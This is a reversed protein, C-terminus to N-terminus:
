RPVDDLELARSYGPWTFDISVTDHSLYRVGPCDRRTLYFGRPAKEALAFGEEKTLGRAIPCMQGRGYDWSWATFPRKVTVRPSRELETSAALVPAREIEPLLKHAVVGALADCADAKSPVGARAFGVM